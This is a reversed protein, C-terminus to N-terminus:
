STGGVTPETEKFLGAKNDFLVINENAYLGGNVATGAGLTINGGAMINGRIDSMEDLFVNGGVIWWVDGAQAGGELSVNVFVGASFDNFIQFIFISNGNLILNGSLTASDNFFYTAPPLVQGNGLTDEGFASFDVNNPIQLAKIRNDTSNTLATQVTNTNIEIAGTLENPPFGTLTGALGINGFVQTAGGGSTINTGALIGFLAAEGIGIQSFFRSNTVPKVKISSNKPSSGISYSGARGIYCTRM